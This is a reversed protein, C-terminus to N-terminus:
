HGGARCSSPRRRKYPSLGRARSGFLIVTPPRPQAERVIREVVAWVLAAAPDGALPNRAPAASHRNEEVM